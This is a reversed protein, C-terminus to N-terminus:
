SLQAIRRASEAVGADVNMSEYLDRAEMWLQRAEEKQALEQKLIAFGRLTNALDLAATGANARYIKLAEQYCPEAPVLQGEELYIDGVHRVSHALRLLDGQERYITVAEEYYHRAVETNKLDREIQGLGTLARALDTPVNSRRCVEVAEILVQKADASRNERRAHYADALMEELVDSM